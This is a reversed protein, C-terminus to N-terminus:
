LPVEAMLFRVGEYPGWLARPMTRSYPGLPLCNRILSTGRYGPPDVGHAAGGPILPQDAWPDGQPRGMLHGLPDAWRGLSPRGHTQALPVCTHSSVNRKTQTV